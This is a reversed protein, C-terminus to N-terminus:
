TYWTRNGWSRVYLRRGCRLLGALLGKGARVAGPDAANVPESWTTGGDSSAIVLTTEHNLGDAADCWTV